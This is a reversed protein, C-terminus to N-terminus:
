SVRIVGGAINIANAASAFAAVTLGNRLLHGNTIPIAASNAPITYDKVLNKGLGPIGWEVTLTVAANTVNSATLQPEDITQQGALCTHILTGPTVTATVPIPEGDTSASLIQRSYPM